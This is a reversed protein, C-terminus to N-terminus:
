DTEDGAEVKALVITPASQLCDFMEGMAIYSMKINGDKIREILEDADILRM